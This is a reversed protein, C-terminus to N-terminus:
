DRIYRVSVAGIIGFGSIAADNRNNFLKMISKHDPLNSTSSWFLGEVNLSIYEGEYHRLGALKGEFGSSGGVKLKTGADNGLYAILIEWEQLTPLHWGNPAGNLAANNTYLRGYEAVNNENDDYAYVGNLLTGDAARTAKFNEAMWWQEGIKITAYVNGDFDILTGTKPDDTLEGNTKCGFIFSLWVLLFVSVYKILM